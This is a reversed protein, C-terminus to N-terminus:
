VSGGDERIEHHTEGEAVAVAHTAVSEAYAVPAAYTVPAVTPAVSGLMLLLDFGEQRVRQDFYVLSLGILGIPTVVMGALANVILQISMAM